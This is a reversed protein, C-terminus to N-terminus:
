KRHVPTQLNCKLNSPITGFHASNLKLPLGQSRKQHIIDTYSQHIPAILACKLTAPEGSGARLTLTLRLGYNVIILAFSTVLVPLLLYYFDRYYVILAM